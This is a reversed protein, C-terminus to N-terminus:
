YSLSFIRPTRFSMWSIDADGAPVPPFSSFTFSVRTALGAALSGRWKRTETHGDSFAFNAAGNHYTAPWDIWTAQQPSFFAPDNISDPHEEVYLWAQAPPPYRFESIKRVQRYIPDFPGNSANGEGIYINASYSRVRQLWGRAKQAVSLYTDAPCKFTNSAGGVYPGLLAYRADILRLINTNDTNVSWDLSGSAWSASPAPPPPLVLGSHNNPVIKGSYDEAYTQWAVALQRLNHQCLASKTTPHSRALAPLVTLVLIALVGTVVLLETLTFAAAARQDPHPTHPEPRMLPLIQHPNEPGTLRRKVIARVVFCNM